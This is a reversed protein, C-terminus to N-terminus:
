RAGGAPGSGLRDALWEGVVNLSWTLALIALAPPLVLLPAVDMVPVGDNLLTGLSPFPPQVGFGLFSLFAEELVLTPVMLVAYAFLPFLTNPLLHHRVVYFNKFGMGRLARMFDADKVSFALGRAYRALSFWQVAGLAAFLVVGQALAQAQPDEWRIRFVDRSFVSILIVVFIFPVAQLVELFRLFLRDARGGVFGSTLGLVAGCLFAVFTASIAVLLSVRLGYLMRSLLDRGLADTGLVHPFSVPAGPFEALTILGDGDTDAALADRRSFALFSTSRILENYDIRGDDDSDMAPGALRPMLAPGAIDAVKARWTEMPLGDQRLSSTDALKLWLRVLRQRKKVARDVEPCLLLGGEKACRLEGSGDGDLLTFHSPVHDYQRKTAPLSLTGPPMLAAAPDVEDYSFHTVQDALVGALLAGLVLAALLGGALSLAWNRILLGPIRSLSTV